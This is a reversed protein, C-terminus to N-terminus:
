PYPIQEATYMGYAIIESSSYPVCVRGEFNEDNELCQETLECIGLEHCGDPMGKPIEPKYALAASAPVVTFAATALLGAGLRKIVRTTM